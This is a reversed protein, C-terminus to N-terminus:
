TIAIGLPAATLADGLRNAVHGSLDRFAQATKAFEDETLFGRTGLTKDRELPTGVMATGPWIGQLDPHGDATRPMSSAARPVNTATSRPQATPVATSLGLALVTASSLRGVLRM